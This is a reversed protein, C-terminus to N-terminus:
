SFCQSNLRGLNCTTSKFTPSIHYELMQMNLKIIINYKGALDLGVDSVQTM